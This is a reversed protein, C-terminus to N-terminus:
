LKRPILGNQYFLERVEVLYKTKKKGSSGVTSREGMMRVCCVNNLTRLEFYQSHQVFFTSLKRCISNRDEVSLIQGLLSLSVWGDKDGADDLAKKLAKMSEASLAFEEKTTNMTSTTKKAPSSKPKHAASPPNGVIKKVKTTDTLLNQAENTKKTLSARKTLSSKPQTVSPPSNQHIEADRLKETYIFRECATAFPIPTQRQGFGIVHKGAERLRQALPTFDSDSSVLVFGDLNSNRYLLDMAEIIMVADSSGKGSTYSFANVSRFSFELSKQKWPLLNPKSFDGYIRRVSSNAGMAAVERIINPLSSWQANEADVLIAYQQPKTENVHSCSEVMRPSCMRQITIYLRQLLLQIMSAFGEMPHSPSM